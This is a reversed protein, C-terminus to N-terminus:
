GAPGRRGPLRVRAGGAALRGAAGGFGASGALEDALGRLIAFAPDTGVIHPNTGPGRARGLLTGDRAM